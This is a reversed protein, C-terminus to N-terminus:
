NLLRNSFIEFSFRCFLHAAYVEHLMLVALRFHKNYAPSFCIEAAVSVHGLVHPKIFIGFYRYFRTLPNEITPRLFSEFFFTQSLGYLRHLFLLSSRFASLFQPLCLQLYAVKNSHRVQTTVDKCFHDADGTDNV